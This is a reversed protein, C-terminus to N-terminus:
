DIPTKNAMAQERLIKEAEAAKNLEIVIRMGQRDSEDRLDAVGDLGGNRTLEAIREILSSKNTLYPIENIIIRSKGRTMEELDKERGNKKLEKEFKAQEKREDWKRKENLIAQEDNNM